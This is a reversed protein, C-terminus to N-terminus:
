LHNTVTHPFCLVPFRQVLTSTFIQVYRLSSFSPIDQKFMVSTMKISDLRYEDRIALGSDASEICVFYHGHTCVSYSRGVWAVCWM